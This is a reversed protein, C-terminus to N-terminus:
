SWKAYEKFDSKYGHDCYTDDKIFYKKPITLQCGGVPCKKWKKDCYMKLMQAEVRKARWLRFKTRMKRFMSNEKRLIKDIGCDPCEMKVENGFPVSFGRVYGTGECRDCKMSREKWGM